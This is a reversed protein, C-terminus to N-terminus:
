FCYNKKENGECSFINEFENSILKFGVVYGPVVAQGKTTVICSHHRAAVFPDNGKDLAIIGIDVHRATCEVLDVDSCFLPGLMQWEEIDQQGIDVVVEPPTGVAVTVKLVQLPEVLHILQLHQFM